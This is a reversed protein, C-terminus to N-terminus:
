YPSMQECLKSRALLIICIEGYSFSSNTTQGCMVFVCRSCMGVSDLTIELKVEHECTSLSQVIVKLLREMEKTNHIMQALINLLHVYHQWRNTLAQDCPYTRAQASKSNNETEVGECGWINWFFVFIVMGDLVFM